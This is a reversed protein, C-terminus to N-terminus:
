KTLRKIEDDLEKTARRSGRVATVGCKKLTEFTILGDPYKNLVKVSVWGKRGFRIKPDNPTVVELRYKVSGIPKAVYIYLIDGKQMGMMNKWFPDPSDLIVSADFLKPNSPSIWIHNSLNTPEISLQYSENILEMITNDDLTEDLIMTIWSIKNMHYASYFRKIKLLDQIKDKDLKVNLVEVNEDKGNIKTANIYGMLAYWKHSEKNEFVSFTLDEWKFIPKDGYREYILSAIRNTQNFRYTKEKYYKNKIEELVHLYEDLVLAPYGEVNDRRFNTYEDKFDIDIIEGTLEGDKIDIVILFDGIEMKREIHLNTSPDILEYKQFYDKEKFM